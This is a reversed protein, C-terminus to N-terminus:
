RWGRVADRAQMWWYTCQAAWRGLPGFVPALGYAAFGRPIEADGALAAALVDGALTTPAVGHGGFGMAYWPGDSLRGIQPMKHRAYSMLGSWAHEVQVGALQPYVRLLDRLLLAKVARPPLDRISIRGGWLLRTGPLAHYYDFAFRTDYVAADTNVAARLREGLPATTIVYTAIPMVARALAPVLRGLYGGCCVVVERCQVRGHPTDIRWGAGDRVIATAPSGEHLRVGAGQLARALGHVYKLPNFHFANAEHLAAHYRESALLARTEDRSLWRWHADFEDGMLRQLARLARPDRFWDALLVGAHVADCDIAHREIRARIRAVAGQTMAYLARAEDRGRQALLVANDLSFGGFVFGGNRGSAGHGLTAAELLVVDRARGREMLGFATALGAFGGGVIAVDADAAGDLPAFCPAREVTSHYYTPGAPGRLM